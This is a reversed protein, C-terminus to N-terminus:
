EYVCSTEFEQTHFQIVNQYSSPQSLSPDKPEQLDKISSSNSHGIKDNDHDNTSDCFKDDPNEKLIGIKYFLQGSTIYLIFFSGLGFFLGNSISYTFPMTVITMYAPLAIRINNWEIDCVQGMMLVGIFVLVPSTAAPPVDGLMPGFFISIAFLIAIVVASLGTKGGAAAGASSEIAVIIPSCGTLGSIMTGVSAAILAWHAGPITGNELLGAINGIGFTCGSVDLILILVFSLGGSIITKIPTDYASLVDFPNLITPTETWKQPWANKLTLYIISTIVIGVLLSGKVRYYKLTAILLGNGMALWIIWSSMDGLTLISAGKSGSSNAIIMDLDVLGIFALFTGMGVITSVKIFHPLQNIIYPTIKLLTFLFVFLGSLFSVFLANQWPNQYIKM